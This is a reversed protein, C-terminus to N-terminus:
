GAKFVLSVLCGVLLGGEFSVIPHHLCLLMSLTEHYIGPSDVVMRRVKHSFYDQVVSLTQGMAKHLIVPVSNGVGEDAASKAHEFITKWTSLLGELDTRLEEKCQGVALTRVILGFGAPQLEEAIEHLRTREIGTISKSIGINSSRTILVWFRSKLKPYPTASPGKKGLGEKVVQVVINTGPRIDDWSYSDKYKLCSGSVYLDTISEEAQISKKSTFEAVDIDHHVEHDAFEDNICLTSGDQFVAVSDDDPEEVDDSLRRVDQKAGLQERITSSRAADTFKRKKSSCFPPFIFPQKDHQIKMFCHETGIDVFAAGMRPVLKKVVGLYISDCLVNDKAPELLLEVLEGDELVAIRQMSCRSSNILIEISISEKLFHHKILEQDPRKEPFPLAHEQYSTLNQGNPSQERSFAECKFGVDANVSKVAPYILWPEEVPQYTDSYLSASKVADVTADRNILDSADIDGDAPSSHVPSLSLWPEEILQYRDDLMRFINDVRSLFGNNAGDLMPDESENRSCCKSIEMGDRPLSQGFHPVFRDLEKLSGLGFCIAHSKTNFNPLLMGRYQRRGKLSILVSSAVNLQKIAEHSAWQDGHILSSCNCNRTSIMVSGIGSSPLLLLM